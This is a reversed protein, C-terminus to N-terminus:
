RINALERANEDSPTTQLAETDRLQLWGYVALMGSFMAIMAATVGGVTTDYGDVEIGVVAAVLLSAMSLGALFAAALGNIRLGYHAPRMAERFRSVSVQRGADLAYVAIMLFLVFPAVRTFGLLVLFSLYGIGVASALRTHWGLLLAIGVTLQVAAFLVVWLTLAPLIVSDITAGIAGIHNASVAEFVGRQSEVSAFGPLANVGPEMRTWIEHLFKYGVFIRLMGATLAVRDDVRDSVFVGFAIIGSVVALELAVLAMKQTAM